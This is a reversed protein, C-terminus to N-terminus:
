KLTMVITQKLYRNGTYKKIKSKVFGCSEYVNIARLNTPRVELYVKKIRLKKAKGLLQKIAKTGYGKSQQKKDGIVIQTEYWDNKRSQLSIHGIVKRDVTIIYHFGNQEKLIESFYHDVEKNTLQKLNGSTVKLLAKDRWWKAFYKKDSLKVKRLRLMYINFSKYVRLGAEM